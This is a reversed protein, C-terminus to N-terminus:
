SSHENPSFVNFGAQICHALVQAHTGLVVDQKMLLHDPTSTSRPLPPARHYLVQRTQRDGQAGGM